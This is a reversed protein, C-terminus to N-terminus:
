TAGKPMRAKVADPVDGLDLDVPTHEVRIVSMQTYKVEGEMVQPIDKKALELAKLGSEATFPEFGLIRLRHAISKLFKKEDDVLLIKITIGAM